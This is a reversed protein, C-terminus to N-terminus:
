VSSRTLKSCVESHARGRPHPHFLYGVAMGVLGAWLIGHSVGCLELSVMTLGSSLVSLLTSKSRIMPLVMVIFIAAIAFDFGLDSMSQMFNGLVIGACTAANWIFYITFGVAFAYFYDFGEKQQIRNNVVAFMEDTLLFAMVGRKYWPLRCIFPRFVASYLLHRTSIVFTTSLITLMPSAVQLLNLAGLQAAGAFMLLSMAQAQLPSLGTEIALSGALIGWPIMALSLPLSDSIPRKWQSWKVVGARDGRM